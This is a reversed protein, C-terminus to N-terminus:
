GAAEDGGGGWVRSGRGRYNAQALWLEGLKRHLEEDEPYIYNIRDLTAAAEKPM